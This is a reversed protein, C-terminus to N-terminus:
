VRLASGTTHWWLSKVEEPDYATGNPHFVDHFWPHDKGFDTELWTNWPVHTNSRGQFLGWTYGWAGHHKLVPLSNILTSDLPRAMFETVLAPGRQLRALDFLREELQEPTCYCHLSPVDSLDVLKQNLQEKFRKVEDDDDATPFEWVATTLPQMPGAMRAWEFAKDLLQMVIQLKPGDLLWHEPYESMERGHMANLRPMILHESQRQTPENYIDWVAVRPDQAFRTVVGTVYRELRQFAWSEGHGFARLVDHSPCQLWASNHVGPIYPDEEPLDPRWCADFLVLMVSMEHRQFLDLLRSIKALFASEERFFLEEHLFIRLATFGAARAVHLEREAVLLSLDFNKSDFLELVNGCNSPLYNAGVRWAGTWARARDESWRALRALVPLFSWAVVALRGICRCM